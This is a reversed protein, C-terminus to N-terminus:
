CHEMGKLEQLKNYIIKRLQVEYRYKALLSRTAEDVVTSVKKIMQHSTEAMLQKMGPILTDKVYLRIADQKARITQIEFLARSSSSEVIKKLAALSTTSQTIKERLVDIAADREKLTTKLDGGARVLDLEQNQLSSFSCNCCVYWPRL